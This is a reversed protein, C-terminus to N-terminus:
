KKQCSIKLIFYNNSMSINITSPTEKRKM